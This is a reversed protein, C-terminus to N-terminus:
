KPLDTHSRGGPPLWLMLITKLDDHASWGITLPPLDRRMRASAEFAALNILNPVVHVPSGTYQRAIEALHPTTVTVGHVRELVYIRQLRELEYEELTAEAEPLDRFVDAQRQPFEPSWLDDDSDFIWCLGLNKVLDHWQGFTRETSFAIRPTIIANYRGGIILPRQEDFREYSCWDAIFGHLGLFGNPWWCRYLNPGAYKGHVTLVRPVLSLPLQEVDDVDTM